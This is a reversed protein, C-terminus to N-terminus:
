SLYDPLDPDEQFIECLRQRQEEERAPPKINRMSVRAHTLTSQVDPPSTGTVLEVVELTGLDQDEAHSDPIIAFFLM